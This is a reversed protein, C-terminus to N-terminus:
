EVEHWAATKAPHFKNATFFAEVRQLKQIYDSAKHPGAGHIIHNPMMFFGVNTQKTMQDVVIGEHAPAITQAKRIIASILSSEDGDKLLPEFNSIAGKCLSTAGAGLSLLLYKNAKPIDTLITQLVATSPELEPPGSTDSGANRVELSLCSFKDDAACILGKVLELAHDSEDLMERLRKLSKCSMLKSDGKLLALLNFRTNNGDMTFYGKEVLHKTPHNWIIQVWSPLKGEDEDVLTSRAWQWIMDVPDVDSPIQMGILAGVRKHDKLWGSGATHKPPAAAPPPPRTNIWDNILKKNSPSRKIAAM